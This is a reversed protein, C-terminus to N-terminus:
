IKENYGVKSRMWDLLVLFLYVAISSMYVIAGLIGMAILFVIIVDMNNVGLNNKGLFSVYIICVFLLITCTNNLNERYKTAM